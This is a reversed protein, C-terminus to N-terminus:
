VRRKFGLGEGLGLRDEQPFLLWCVPNLCLSWCAGRLIGIMDRHDRLGIKVFRGLGM